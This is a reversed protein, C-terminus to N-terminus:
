PSFASGNLQKTPSEWLLHGGDISTTPGATISGLVAGDAAVFNGGVTQVNVSQIRAWGTEFTGVGNCNVDLENPDHPTSTALFTESFLPSVNVLPQDFWCAFIKTTSLPFENDNWVDIKLTNRDTPGGTLNIMALSSGAVALFSDIYLIDPVGQYEMGNFDLQGNSNLDTPSGAAVPSTFPIANLSYMGGSANVVLESGMLDNHSWPVGYLTPDQASVVLYGAQGDPSTANHCTTLVSLTDAPTLFEVRDFVVCGLPLQPESPNPITNAYEYHVLTSGGFSNPTMPMTNINTVSVVTFFTPGSRQVTFILVSGPQRGDALASPALTATVILILAILRLPKM